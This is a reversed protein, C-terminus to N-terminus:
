PLLDVTNIPALCSAYDAIYYQLTGGQGYQPNASAPGMAAPCRRTVRYYTAKPRYGFQPHAAVQLGQAFRSRSMGAAQLAEPTSYYASQGPAGGVVITGPELYEGRYDDVGPYAGKGQWGRAEAVIDALAEDAVVAAAASPPAAAFGAPAAPASSAPPLAPAPPTGQSAASPAPAAGSPASGARGGSPTGASEVQARLRGDLLASQVRGLMAADSIESLGDAACGPILRYMACLRTRSESSVATASWRGVLRAAMTPTLSGSGARPQHGSTITVTSSGSSLRVPLM